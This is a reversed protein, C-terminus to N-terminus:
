GEQEGGNEVVREAGREKRNGDGPDGQFDQRTLFDTTSKRTEQLKMGVGKEKGEGPAIEAEDGM